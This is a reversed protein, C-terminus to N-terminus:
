LVVGVYISVLILNLLVLVVQDVTQLEEIGLQSVKGIPLEPLIDLVLQTLLALKVAEAVLFLLEIMLDFAEIVFELASLVFVGLLCVFVVLFDESELLLDILGLSLLLQIHLVAVALGSALEGANLADVVLFLLVKILADLEQL